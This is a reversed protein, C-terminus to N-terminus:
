KEENTIQQLENYIHELNAYSSSNHSQKRQWAIYKVIEPNEWLMIIYYAFADYIYNMKILGQKEYFSLDEFSQLIEDVEFVNYKFSCKESRDINNLKKYKITDLEFWVYELSESKFMLVENDLLTILRINKQTYFDTKIKHAFEASTTENIGKIQSYSIILLIITSASSLMAWFVTRNIKKDKDTGCLFRLFKILRSQSSFIKIKNKM